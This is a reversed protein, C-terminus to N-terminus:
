KRSNRTNYESAEKWSLEVKSKVNIPDRPTIWSLLRQDYNREISKL